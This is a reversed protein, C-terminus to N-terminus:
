QASLALLSANGGIASTNITTTQETAFRRVYDPGGAKPGTGSLGSGGFPQVGVVAGIMNRNVYINGARANARVFEVTSDLRTHLGLTLAYGTANISELLEGLADAAYRVIHLVPGFVEGELCSISAIEVAFPAVFTGRELSHTMSVRHQWRAGVSIKCIYSELMDRADKDIVPGVDTAIDRPLGVVLEDMAGQLLLEVRDAIDDQLCLVRLASCRQGASGFASLVVDQVVQEPLASSDVIMANQGGTEAILVGIAGERSALLRSIARATENSGTFAVGAIRQDRVLASGIAVGDGPLCALAWVPVGARHLLSTVFCAILPTQEAPKAIVANGAALAAAVQGTFIALPFNWPSICVFVGRGRLSLANSEGTPGPLIVPQVFLRRAESAYYRLFDIAERIEAVGDAYTKGAENVLLACLLGTNAAFLDASRELVAAREAGGCRDWAQWAALAGSLAQEVDVATADLVHGVVHTADAPASLPRGYAEIHKRTPSAGAIIPAAIQSPMTSVSDQLPRLQSLDALQIGKSNARTSGFLASPLAIAPHPCSSLQEMFSIPDSAIEEPPLRADVLRNVFSTNAGNELLRRVLYPLLDEHSGVPAYVRCTVPAPATQDALLTEYLAEGMGHLRQYEFSVGRARALYGIATVTHANHTAFQSYIVDAADLLLTACALYAVDTAQKRTYVPYGDHGREQARKIESDWYAGKVLRVNLVRKHTRAANILWRVVDPARKQYAQVALGFGYWNALAPCKLVASVVDLSLELRESEEADLTLSVGAAAARECLRIVTPVLEAHVRARQSIEYRPHLASLKISISPAAVDWVSQGSQARWQGLADIAQAYAHTYTAADRRTLASEGLMDFSYRYLANGGEGARAIAEGITRGMVFQHGMIRMAHRLASRVLPEGLRAALARVFHKPDSRLAQETGVLRGTLLLGWTSANVFLSGSAALHSAWDGAGMKEAILRDATAHDPIRLLAEALCMLIVGEQTGLDYERLFADMGGAAQAARVRIVLAAADAAIVARESATIPILSLLDAVAQTEDMCWRQNVPAQMQALPSSM